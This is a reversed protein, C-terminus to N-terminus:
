TFMPPAHGEARDVDLPGRADSPQRAPSAYPAQDVNGAYAGIWSRWRAVNAGSACTLDSDSLCEGANRQGATLSTRPRRSSGSPAPSAEGFKVLKDGKRCPGSAAAAPERRLHRRPSRRIRPPAAPPPWRRTRRGRSRCTHPVRRCRHRKQGLKRGADWERAVLDCQHPAVVDPGGVQGTQPVEM